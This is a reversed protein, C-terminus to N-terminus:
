ASIRDRSTVSESEISAATSATLFSVPLVNSKKTFLEPLPLFINKEQTSTPPPLSQRHALLHNVNCAVRHWDQVRVQFRRLLHEVGIDKAQHFHRLFECRQKDLGLSRNYVDTGNASDFRRWEMTRLCVNLMPTLKTSVLHAGLTTCSWCPLM